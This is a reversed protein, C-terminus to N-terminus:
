EEEEEKMEGDYDYLGTVILENFARGSLLGEDYAEECAQAFADYEDAHEEAWETDWMSGLEKARKMLEDYTQAKMEEWGKTDWASSDHEAAPTFTWHRENFMVYRGEDTYDISGKGLDKRGSTHKTRNETRGQLALVMGAWRQAKDRVAEWDIEGDRILVVDDVKFYCIIEYEDNRYTGFDYDVGLFWLISAKGSAIELCANALETNGRRRNVASLEAMRLIDMIVNQLTYGERRMM